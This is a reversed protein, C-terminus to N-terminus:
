ASVRCSQQLLEGNHAGALEECAELLYDIFAPFDPCYWPQDGRRVYIDSLYRQSGLEDQRDVVLFFQRDGPFNILLPVGGDQLWSLYNAPAIGRRDEPWNYTLCKEPLAFEKILCNMLAHSSALESVIRSLLTSELSTM